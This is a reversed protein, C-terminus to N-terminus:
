DCANFNSYIKYSNNGSATIHLMQEKGKTPYNGSKLANDFIINILSATAEDCMNIMRISIGNWGHAKNNNLACIISAIKHESFSIDNINSNVKYEFPSLTNNNNIPTCQEAFFTDKLM